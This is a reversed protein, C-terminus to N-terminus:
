TNTNIWLYRCECSKLHMDSASIRREASFGASIRWKKELNEEWRLILIATRCYHM